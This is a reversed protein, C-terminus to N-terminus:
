VDHARVPLPPTHPDPLVGVWWPSRVTYTPSLSSRMPAASFMEIRLCPPVFLLLNSVIYSRVVRTHASTGSAINTLAWVAEYQLSTHEDRQLFEVFRPVVGADIVAQIPPDREISLLKRMQSTAELQRAPDDSLVDAVLQPLQVLEPPAKPITQPAKAGSPLSPASVVM